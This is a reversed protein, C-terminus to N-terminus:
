NNIIKDDLRSIIEAFYVSKKPYLLGLKVYIQKAQTFLGQREYIEALEETVMDDDSEDSETPLMSEASGDEDATDIHYDGEKLFTEVITDEVQERVEETPNDSLPALLDTLYLLDDCRGYLKRRLIRATVFWPYRRVLGRLEGESPAATQGSKDNIYKNLQM